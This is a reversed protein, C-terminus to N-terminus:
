SLCTKSMTLNDGFPTVILKLNFVKSHACSCLYVANPLSHNVGTLKFDGDVPFFLGYESPYHRYRNRLTLWKDFSRLHKSNDKPPRIFKSSYDLLSFDNGCTKMTPVKLSVSM